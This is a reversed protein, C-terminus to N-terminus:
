TVIVILIRILQTQKNGRILRPWNSTTITFYPTETPTNTQFELGTLFSFVALHTGSQLSRLNRNMLRWILTSTENNFQNCFLCQFAAPSPWTFCYKLLVGVISLKPNFINAHKVLTIPKVMLMVLTHIAHYAPIICIMSDMM